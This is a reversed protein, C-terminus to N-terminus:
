RPCSLSELPSITTKVWWTCPSSQSFTGPLVALRGVYWSNGWGSDLPFSNLRCFFFFLNPPVNLRELKGMKLHDLDDPSDSSCKSQVGIPDYSFIKAETQVFYLLLITVWSGPLPLYFHCKRFPLRPVHCPREWCSSYTKYASAYGSFAMVCEGSSVIWGCLFVCFNWKFPLLTNLFLAPISCHFM